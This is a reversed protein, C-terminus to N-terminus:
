ERHPQNTHNMAGAGILITRITGGILLGWALSYAGSNISLGVTALVVGTWVVMTGLLFYPKGVVLLYNGLATQGALVVGTAIMILLVPWVAAFEPGAIKMIIPAALAIPVGILAATGAQASAMLWAMRRVAHHDNRAQLSSMIPLAARNTLSSIIIVAGFINNTFAFVGVAILGEPALSKVMIQALWMTPGWLASILFAPLGFSLLLSTDSRLFRSRVRAGSAHVFRVYAIGLALTKVLEVTALGAIAGTVGLTSALLPVAVISLAAGVFAIVGLSRGREFALMVTMLLSSASSLIVWALMWRSIQASAPQDLLLGVITPARLLGVVIIVAGTTLVVTGCLNVIQVARQVSVERMEPIYRSLITGAGLVVFIQLTNVLGQALALRGYDAAGLIRALLFIVLIMTGKELSFSFLSWSTLSVLRRLVDSRTLISRCHDMLGRSEGPAGPRRASKM